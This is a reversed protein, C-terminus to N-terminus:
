RHPEPDPQDVDPAAPAGARESPDVRPADHGPTPWADPGGDAVSADDVAVGSSAVDSPAEDAYSSAPADAPSDSAVPEPAGSEDSTVRVEGPAAADEVASELYLTGYADAQYVRVLRVKAMELLALFTVVVDYTSRVDDFLADFTARRLSALRETIQSMREAISVREASIERSLDVNKRALVKQFADLLKFLGVEALPAPGQAEEIAVGRFFVDRGAIGRAGLDEAALKYKQYELLKRILEARPDIEEEDAVDEDDSATPEPPLLTKSKIHALTAAMLLYESAVDLDLQQMLSLYSLYRETVFAIPLDLIDLEHKQILHLLLDLPGQFQPLAIVFDPDLPRIQAEDRGSM